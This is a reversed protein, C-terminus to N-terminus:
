DYEFESQVIYHDTYGKYSPAWAWNEIENFADEPTDFRGLCVNHDIVEIYLGHLLPVKKYEYICYKM